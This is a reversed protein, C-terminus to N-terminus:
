RARPTRPRPASTGFLESSVADLYADDRGSWAHLIWGLHYSRCEEVVTLRAPSARRGASRTLIHRVGRAYRLPRELPGPESRRIARDIFFPEPRLMPRGLENKGLLWRWSKEIAAAAGPVQRDLLPFLFLMAMSDQHVSYVPYRDLVRARGADIFWPWEGNEGQLAVVQGAAERFIAEAYADSFADAYDALAKLFYAMGGFSSLSRRWRSLSHRPLMTRKDLMRRDMFRFLRECDRRGSPPDTATAHATLGMLMWSLDQLDLAALRRPDSVLAALERQLSGARDNAAASTVMLLLGKDAPSSVAHGHVSLFRDLHPGTSWEIRGRAAAEHLGAFANITYRLAGPHGYDNVLHTGVERASYSFLADEERYMRMLLAHTSRILESM